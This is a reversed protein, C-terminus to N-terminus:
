VSCLTYMANYEMSSLPHYQTQIHMCCHQEWMIWGAQPYDVLRPQQRLLCFNSWVVLQRQFHVGKQTRHKQRLANTHSIHGQWTFTQALSTIHDAHCNHRTAEILSARLTRAFECSHDAEGSGSAEWMSERTVSYRTTPKNQRPKQVRSDSAYSWKDFALTRSKPM